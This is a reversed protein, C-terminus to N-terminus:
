VMSHRINWSPPLISWYDKWFILVLILANQQNILSLNRRPGPDHKPGARVTDLTRGTWIGVGPPLRSPETRFVEGRTTKRWGLKRTRSCGSQFPPESSRHGRDSRIPLLLRQKEGDWWKHELCRASDNNIKPPPLPQRGGLDIETVFRWEM